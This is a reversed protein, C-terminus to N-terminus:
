KEGKKLITDHFRSIIKMANMPDFADGKTGTM